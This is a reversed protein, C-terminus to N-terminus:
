IGEKIKITSVMTLTNTIEPVKRLELIFENFKTINSFKCKLILDYGGTIGFVDKICKQKFFSNPIEKNSNILIFVIFDEGLKQDNTKITFKEIVSDEVLNQIRSHITSPRLKTINSIEKLTARSDKKLQKIIKKDTKDLM